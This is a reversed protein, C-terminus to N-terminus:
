NLIKNLLDERQDALNYSYLNLSMNYIKCYEQMYIMINKLHTVSIIKINRDLLYNVFIITNNQYTRFEGISLLHNNNIAKITKSRIEICSYFNTLIFLNKDMTEDFCNIVNEKWDKSNM